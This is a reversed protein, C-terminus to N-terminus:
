FVDSLLKWNGDPEQILISMSVFTMRTGISTVKATATKGNIVINEIIVVTTDGGYEKSKIKELYVKKSIISVDKSGFMRNMVVRYNDDLYGALKEADNEDSAKSYEIITKEINEVENKKANCIMGLVLLCVIVILKLKKMTKKKKLEVM